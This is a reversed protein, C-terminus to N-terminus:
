CSSATCGIAAGRQALSEANVTQHDEAATPLPVLMGALGALALEACSSAGARGLVVDAEAYVRPMDRCFGLVPM